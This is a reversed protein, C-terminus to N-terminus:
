KKVGRHTERHEEITMVQMNGKQQKKKEGKQGIRCIAYITVCIILTVLVTTLNITVQM